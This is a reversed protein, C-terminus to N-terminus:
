VVFYLINPFISKKISQLKEKFNKEIKEDYFKRLEMRRLKPFPVKDINNMFHMTNDLTRTHLSDGYPVYIFKVEEIQSAFKAM